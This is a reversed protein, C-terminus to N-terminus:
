WRIETLLKEASVINSLMVRLRPLTTTGQPNCLFTSYAKTSIGTKILSYAIKEIFTLFQAVINDDEVDEKIM